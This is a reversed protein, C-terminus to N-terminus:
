SGNPDYTGGRNMGAGSGGLQDPAIPGGSSAKMLGETLWLWVRALLGTQTAMQASEPSHWPQAAAPLAALCVLTTLVAATIVSRLLNRSM